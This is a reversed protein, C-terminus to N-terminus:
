SGCLPGNFNHQNMNYIVCQGHCTTSDCLHTCISSLATPIHHRPKPNYAISMNCMYFSVVNLRETLFLGIFLSIHM